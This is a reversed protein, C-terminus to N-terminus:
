FFLLRRNGEMSERHAPAHSMLCCIASYHQLLQWAAPCYAQGTLKVNCGTELEANSFALVSGFWAPLCTSAVATLCHGPM